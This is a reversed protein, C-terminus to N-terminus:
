LIFCTCWGWISIRRVVEKVRGPPGSLLEDRSPMQHTYHSCVWTTCFWGVCVVTTLQQLTEKDNKRDGAAADFTLGRFAGAM